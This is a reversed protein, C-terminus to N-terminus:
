TNNCYTGSGELRYMVAVKRPNNTKIVVEDSCTAQLFIVMSYNNYPFKSNRISSILSNNCAESCSAINLSYHAGDPDIFSDGLYNNYFDQWTTGKTQEAHDDYSAVGTGTPLAGRNNQQYKKISSLLEMVDDRRDTDRQSRRLSPLAIFVMLFILGAIALVLSVEIITFGNRDGKKM